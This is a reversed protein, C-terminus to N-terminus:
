KQRFQKQNVKIWMPANSMVHCKVHCKAHCKVHYKNMMYNILFSINNSKWYKIIYIIIIIGSLLRPSEQCLPHGLSVDLFSCIFKWIEVQGSLAGDGIHRWLTMMSDLLVSSAGSLLRPPKECPPPRLSVDLFRCILDM